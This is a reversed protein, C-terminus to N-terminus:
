SASEDPYDPLVTFIRSRISFSTGEASAENRELLQVAVSQRIAPGESDIQNLAEMVAQSIVEKVEDPNVGEVTVREIINNQLWLSAKAEGLNVNITPDEPVRPSKPALKDFIRM